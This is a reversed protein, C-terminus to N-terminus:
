QGLVDKLKEALDDIRYPKQIFGAPSDGVFRQTVEQGNYGSALIVRVDPRILRMEGFAEEGGLHPMTLDLLVLVIEDSRQRYIEVGERGDAATIVDFGLEEIVRKGLARVSEEDDVLLVLGSSHWQREKSRKEERTGEAQADAIPFLVKFTTGKEPRSHIKIAGRHGRVIGLVAALGLGRGAFKTTFFPDFLKAQTEADMGCGTDTVELTVYLGEPLDEDLYTETLYARDCDMAGTTISIVGSRDGIAESANVILNMAIQRIQTADAHIAPLGDNFNYKLVAKKSISVELMHSMEKVIKSLDIPQVLFRGKGSYALMQSCLDAARRVAEDIEALEVRAPSTPSLARLALETNGLIVTLINNFDHAIGGALVGLSELKQAHQIQTELARQQEEARRVDTVDRATEIVHVVEGSGDFIPAAVVDLFIQNGESDRDVHQVQVDRRAALAERLACRMDTGECPLDRGHLVQHCQMCASVPDKGGALRRAAENAMLVRYDQDLVMVADPVNDIVRQLFDRSEQLSREARKRETIDLSTFTVGASMDAPDLPTVNLLVDIVVGDKRKWHSEATGAGTRRVHEFLERGARDRDEDTPYLMRIDNGLLESRDYGTMACIRDNVQVFLRECVMGIGTPAARFVSQVTAQSRHLEAEAQKRDTIDEVVEVFGAEQGDPEFIPFAQIRVSVRSGDDRVGETEAEAFRGTAMARAGPCHPCIEDRKEFEEYCKKGILEAPPKNLIRGQMSNAMLIVYNSSIRAIGMDINEVLTRYRQRSERLTAEVRSRLFTYFFGGWLLPELTEVFDEAPDLASTIQCWELVNSFCRFASIGLLIVLTTKVDNQFRGHWHRVVIAVATICALTTVVDVAGVFRNM